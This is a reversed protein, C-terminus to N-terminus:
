GNKSGKPKALGRKRTHSCPTQVLKVGLYQCLVDITKDNLGRQGHLWRSLNGRGIGTAAELTRLSEGRAKTLRRLTDGITERQDTM